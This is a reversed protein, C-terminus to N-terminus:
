PGAPPEAPIPVGPDPSPAQTALNAVAADLTMLFAEIRRGNKGLDPLGSLSASRIDVETGDLTGSVRIAVEDRWGYLTMALANIQGESFSTSPARRQRIEWGNAEVLDEVLSFVRQVEFTYRRTVALPFAVEVVAPDATKRETAPSIILVPPRASNTTVDNVMPFRVGDAVGYIVPALCLLGFVLGTSARGWGRDGSQWLRLYAIIAFLVALFAVVLGTGLAVIFADSDIARGRHM